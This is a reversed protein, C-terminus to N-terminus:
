LDYWSNNERFFKLQLSIKVKEGSHQPPLWSITWENQVPHDLPLHAYVTTSIPKTRFETSFGNFDVKFPQVM